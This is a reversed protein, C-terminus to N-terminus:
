NREVSFFLMKIKTDCRARSSPIMRPPNLPGHPIHPISCLFITHLVLPGVRLNLTKKKKQHTNPTHPKLEDNNLPKEQSYEPVMGPLAPSVMLISPISRQDLLHRVQQIVTNDTIGVCMKSKLYM